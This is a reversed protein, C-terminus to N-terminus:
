KISLFAMFPGNAYDDVVMNVNKSWVIPQQDWVFPIAPALATVALNVQAWAKDRDPGPEIANAKQILANVKPDNLLPWNSNNSQVIAKGDFTPQLLTQADYYDKFFGVNPCIAYNTKPVNCFKTYLTDQPVVRFNLKFGLKEFQAQANEATKKGPDANTAITLLKETGTYKGSPYGAKKMYQAALQPNGTESQLFDFQAPAKMGGSETHGPFSPPLYGWAIPGVSAGGRTLRLASRDFAALVAKRVNLNDFPKVTTNMAIYRTGGASSFAVQSKFRSLAQKLVQAPPAGDGQVLNQGNLIRRSAVAADNNGQQIDWSDLYAPRFDTKADWNPNRVVKISKGQKWGTLNGASDNKVMYPGSFVVHTNYTSPNKADFKAAYEKPVPMTIPMVLADAVIRGNPQTLKFVITYKDPTQIGSIPKPAGEPAKPAGEIASFYAAAYGNPVNGSFSREFAYKIDASTVERNVPPSFKIGQKMKVTVTKSDASVEPDSAAIDPVQKQGTAPNYYYLARQVSYAVQYGFTYYTLGPDMYDVDGAALATVSGGKEGKPVASSTGGSSKDDNSSGCAAVGLSLAAMLCAVLMFRWSRLSM